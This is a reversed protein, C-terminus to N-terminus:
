IRRGEMLCAVDGLTEFRAFNDRYEALM